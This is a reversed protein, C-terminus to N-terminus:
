ARYLMMIQRRDYNTESRNLLGRSDNINLIANRVFVGGIGTITRRRDCLGQHLPWRGPM